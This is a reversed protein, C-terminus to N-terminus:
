HTLLVIGHSAQYWLKNDYYRQSPRTLHVYHHMCPSTCLSLPMRRHLLCPAPHIVNRLKVSLRHQMHYVSMSVYMSLCVSLCVSMCIQRCVSMHAKSFCAPLLAKYISLYLIHMSAYMPRCLYMCVLMCVYMCVYMCQPAHQSLPLGPAKHGASRLNSDWELRWSMGFVMNIYALIPIYLNYLTRYNNM